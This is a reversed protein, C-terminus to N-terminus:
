KPKKKPLIGGIGTKGGTVGSVSQQIAGQAASAAIGGVDPVFSPNSTTGQIKFPVGGRDGGRGTRETRAESRGTQLDAVMQFDLAGSPSITGAGTVVGLSPITVNIADARTMEPTIHANLSANQITTDSSSPAKGSFASLAGLKAGMDFGALKTNSMRVPGSIVLKDLPGAIALDASLTGGNLKSGSPLVVGLAPLMSELEDVSMDPASLKLNMVQTEGQTQFGGTLHAVAKGFGIDGQTITGAQRDLDKDLAYKITVAKPAPSGKPSLKLKECTVTGAAKAQTGTSNLTGELDASGGIGSAPDIFGSAALDLDKVKISADFPTKASDQPNIPGAKGTVSANGGGPLNVTLEFPFQSTLSFDKVEVNLKDYVQPKATSNATGVALKGDKIELKAISLGQPAGSKAPEAPNNKSAGGLSSFNWTGNSAKLLNIQPEDLVIGTVNLQKSFILPMLEVGVELSKATIFPSKSFAPDDAISVNEVGVKGSLLSLSLDGLTVPRDLASTVESEIKPRFSNVNIFFPLAILIIVVAAVVIGAIQLTRKSIQM